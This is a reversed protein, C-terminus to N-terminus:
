KCQMFKNQKDRHGRTSDILKIRRMIYNVKCVWGSEPNKISRGLWSLQWSKVKLFIIPMKLGGLKISNEM